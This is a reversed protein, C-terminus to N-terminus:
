SQLKSLLERARDLAQNFIANNGTKRPEILVGDSADTLAKLAKALEDHCNVARIIEHADHEDYIDCLVDGDETIIACLQVDYNVPKKIASM